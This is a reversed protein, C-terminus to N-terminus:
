SCIGVNHDILRIQYDSLYLKVLSISLIQKYKFNLGLYIKSSKQTYMCLKLDELSADNRNENTKPCVYANATEPDFITSLKEFISQREKSLEEQIILNFLTNYRSINVELESDIGGNSSM